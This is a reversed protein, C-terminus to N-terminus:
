DCDRALLSERFCNVANSPVRGDAAFLAFSAFLFTIPRVAPPYEFCRDEMKNALNAAPVSFRCVKAPAYHKACV